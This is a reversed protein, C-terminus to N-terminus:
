FVVTPLTLLFLVVTPLTVLFLVVTRLTVLFLVVTPLLSIVFSSHTVNSVVFSICVLLYPPVCYARCLHYIPSSIPKYSVTTAPRQWRGAVVRGVVEWTHLVLSQYHLKLSRIIPPTDGSVHQAEYLYSIFNQYVTLM